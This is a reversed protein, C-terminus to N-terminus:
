YFSQVAINEQVEFLDFSCKEVFNKFATTYVPLMTNYKIVPKSFLSTEKAKNNNKKQWSPQVVAM